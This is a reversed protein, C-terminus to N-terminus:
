EAEWMYKMITSPTGTWVIDFTTAGVNNILATAFNQSSDEVNICYTPDTAPNIPSASPNTGQIFVGRNGASNYIGFSVFTAQAVTSGIVGGMATVHIVNPIRGLGHTITQTSASAPGTGVGATAASPLSATPVLGTLLTADHEGSVSVIQYFNGDYRTTVIQGALIDGTVTDQVTIKISGTGVTKNNEAVGSANTIEFYNSGSGTVIFTGKNGANFNQGQIVLGVGAPITTASIGPDTGTGDFTYRYTNGATNTIDFQTTSDGGISVAQLKKLVKGNLTSAGTNSTIAKFAVLMGVYPVSQAGSFTAVYTDTGATDVAYNYLTTQVNPDFYIHTSDKAIGVVRPVTGATGSNIGGATNSAYCLDGQTLGSTVYTGYTLVGGTIAVGNTGAGQAIGLKVNFLTALTDADCKMWEDQTEDFYILNGTAITEGANGAEIIQNFAITGGSVVSLVYAVTALQNATIITATGDYELPKTADLLANGGILKNIFYLHAFDTIVVTAGVRHLRASGTTEVGQRSVSKIATLSTGSLSCVIHEKQSNAGDITFFYVGAPLAVGDDDTASSITATTGGIDLQTSLQVEFDAIVTALNTSM